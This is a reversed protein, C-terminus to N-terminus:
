MLYRNCSVSNLVQISLVSSIEMAAVKIENNQPSRAPYASDRKFNRNAPMSPVPIKM